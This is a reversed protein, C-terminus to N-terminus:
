ALADLINAWCTEEGHVEGWNPFIPNNTELFRM